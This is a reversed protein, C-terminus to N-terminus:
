FYASAGAAARLECHRAFARPTDSFDPTDTYLDEVILTDGRAETHQFNTISDVRTSFPIQWSAETLWNLADITNRDFVEGDGAAVVFFVNDVKTYTNELDDFAQLYPNDPSFFARYDTNFGVRSM